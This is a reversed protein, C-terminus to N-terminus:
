DLVAFSIQPVYTLREIRLNRIGAGKLVALTEGPWQKQNLEDFAVIAGKPMRPLFAKLAAETPEFLDFDLYLLSVVLHGNQEVYQPITKLADGQVLEIKPIHGVARNLDFLQADRRLEEIYEFKYMGAGAQEESSMGNVEDRVHVGPFGSFTDFGIVKRTHNVPELIASLQAWTFLGGGMFVGCEIISGHVPLVRRFIEAKALFGALNQRPVFRAFNRLKDLTTGNSADFAPGVREQFLRDNDSQTRENRLPFKEM